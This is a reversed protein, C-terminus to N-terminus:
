PTVTLRGLVVSRGRKARGHLGAAKSRDGLQPHYIGLRVEYVGPPLTESPLTYSISAGGRRSPLSTLPITYTLVQRNEQDFVHLFAAYDRLTELGRHTAEVRPAITLTDGARLTAPLQINGLIWRGGAFSAQPEWAPPESAPPPEANMGRARVRWAVPTAVDSDTLLALETFLFAAPHDWEVQWVGNSWALPYKERQAACPVLADDVLLRLPPADAPAAVELAYRGPTLVVRPQLENRGARITLEGDLLRARELKRALREPDTAPAPEPGLRVVVPSGHACFFLTHRRGTTRNRTFTTGRAADVSMVFTEHPALTRRGAKGNIRWGLYAERSGTMLTVVLNTATGDDVAIRRLDQGPEVVLLRQERPLAPLDLFIWDTSFTWPTAPMMEQAAERWAEADALRLVAPENRFVALNDGEVALTGLRRIHAAADAPELLGDRMRAAVLRPEERSWFRWENVQRVAYEGAIFLLAVALLRRARLGYDRGVAAAGLLLPLNLFSFHFSQAEPKGAMAVALVALPMFALALDWATAGVRNRWWRVTAVLLTVVALLLLGLGLANGVVPLNNALSFTLRETLPREFFEPKVGYHQIYRFNAAILELTKGFRLFLHPTLLAFGACGGLATLAALGLRRSWALPALLLFLAPMLAPMVGQYKCAFALGLAFGAGLFDVGRPAGDRARVLLTLALMVFLDTGVDGSAFHAVTGLLPALAALLLWGARWGPALDLRRLAWAFLGWAALSYLVRLGRLLDHLTAVDPREPWTTDPTLWGAAVRAVPWAARLIWEDVHNLGYPYGDYALSGTYWLYEGRLFRETARLQKPVDPHFSAGGELGRFLGVARVALALLFLLLTIKGVKM